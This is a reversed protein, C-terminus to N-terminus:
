NDLKYGCGPCHKPKKGRISLSENCEPCRYFLAELIASAIVVILGIYAIFDVKISVGLLLLFLGVVVGMRGVKYSKNYDLREGGSSIM